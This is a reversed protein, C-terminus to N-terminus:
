QRIGHRASVEVPKRGLASRAADVLPVLGDVGAGSTVLRHSVIVQHAADVAIQSNYGAIFGDRTPLM